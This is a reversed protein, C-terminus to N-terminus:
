STKYGNERAIRAVPLTTHILQKAARALRIRRTAQHITEGTISQFVRHWHYPSMHAIDALRELTLQDSPHQYIHDLVRQIRPTYYPHHLM